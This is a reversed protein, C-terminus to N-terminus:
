KKRKLEEFRRTLDDFDVDEGGVSNVGISNVPVSPLGPIDPLVPLTAPGPGTPQTIDGSSKMGRPAPTPLQSKAGDSAPPFLNSSGSPPFQNPSRMVDDYQPLQDHMFNPPNSPLPPPGPNPISNPLVPFGGFPPSGGLGGKENVPMKPSVGSSTGGGSNGISGNCAGGGFPSHKEGSAGGGHGAAFAGASAAGAGIMAGGSGSSGYESIGGGGGGGGFSGGGGGGGFSGNGGGIGGSGPKGDFGPIDLDILSVAEPPPGMMVLPDPEFPVNYTKAIEAMYNEVLRKPPAAVNMRHVVKENVNEFGNRLCMLTYEKGYKVTLQNSVERLEQVDGSLRPTVWIITAIAEEIGPDLETMKEILGFRALLLDCLLEVIEMAEVLYDERIIHEVRIRARDEKGAVIYDAIERRAKLAMETKKKELLKLRNICLRLNTRLKVYNPKNSFM